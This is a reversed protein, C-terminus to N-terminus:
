NRSNRPRPQGHGHGDGRILTQQYSPMALFGRIQNCYEGMEQVRNINPGIRGDALRNIRRALRQWHLDVAAFENTLRHVDMPPSRRANRRFEAVSAQLRQADALIFEGESVDQVNPGFGQLFANISRSLQDALPPVAPPVVPVRIVQAATPRPPPLPTNASLPSPANVTIETLNLEQRILLENEDFARWSQDVTDPVQSQRLENELQDSAAAVSQFLQQRTEVSQNRSLGDYFTGCAKALFDARRSIPRGNHFSAAEAQLTAALNEASQVLTFAIQRTRYGGNGQPANGSPEDDPYDRLGLAQQIQQDLQDVGAAARNTASTSAGPKVLQRKLHRWTQHIGAYAQRRAYPDRTDHLADHFEDTTRALENIDQLLHRGEPTRALDTQIEEGLHRVQDAMQHSLGVLDPGAAQRSSPNPRPPPQAISAQTFSLAFVIGLLGGAHFAIRM